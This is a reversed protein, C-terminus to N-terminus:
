FTKPRQDVRVPLQRLKRRLERLELQSADVLLTAQADFDAILALPRKDVNNGFTKLHDKWMGTLRGAHMGAEDVLQTFEQGIDDMLKDLADGCLEGSTTPTLARHLSGCLDKLRTHREMLMAQGSRGFRNLRDEISGFETPEITPVPAQGLQGIATLMSLALRRPTSIPSSPPAPATPTSANENRPSPQTLFRRPSLSAFLNRPSFGPSSLQLPPVPQTRPETRQPEAPAHSPLSLTFRNM